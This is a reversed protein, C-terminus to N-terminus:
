RVHDIFLRLLEVSRYERPYYLYTGAVPETFEQLLPVLDPTTGPPRYEAFSFGLGLGNAIASYLSPLTNVVLHGSVGVSYRGDPGVFEWPAFRGSGGFRYRICEHDLVDEPTAPTGHTDLYDRSALVALPHTPSLRVAIMDPDIRDGFRIGAHFREEFLDVFSENISIEVEIDPYADRFSKLKQAIVMDYAFGPMTIRLSGRRSKGADKAAQLAAEIQDFAPNAGRFLAQGADTMTVSRTTRTFLAVGLQAELAKLQHSVTSPQLNLRQAAGRLTGERAIADFIELTTLPLRM